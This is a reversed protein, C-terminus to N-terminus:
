LRFPREPSYIPDFFGLWPIGEEVCRIKYRLGAQIEDDARRWYRLFYILEQMQVVQLFLPVRDLWSDPLANFEAYGALLVDFYDTMFAKREALPAFM